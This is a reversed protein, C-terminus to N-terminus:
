SAWLIPMTRNDKFWQTDKLITNNNSCQVSIEGANSIVVINGNLSYANGVNNYEGNVYEVDIVSTVYVKDTYPAINNITQQTPFTNLKTEAYEFSGAVCTVVFYKPKIVDLLTQTNSTNSGHHGAKFLECEPLDNYEVLKNEGSEELDGTFLYHKSGQNIIFCVSYNNESSSNNEYYYNYLIELEIGQAIEYVRKAGNENNYCELATYHKAGDNDIENQRSEVYSKYTATNKNTRPFDIITKVKYEDFLSYSDNNGSWAAIHDQDAHTIIAYEITRDTVYQNVYNIITSTSSTKSGGDVIIDTDGAKIYICDGTYNNGLELFHFSIDGEIKIHKNKYYKDYLFYGVCGIIVVVLVLAVFIKGARSLKNYSNKVQKIKSKSIRKRAM